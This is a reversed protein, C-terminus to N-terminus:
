APSAGTRDAAIAVRRQDHHDIAAAFARGSGAAHGLAKESARRGPFACAVCIAPLVLLLCRRSLAYSERRCLMSPLKEMIGDVRMCNNLKAAAPARTTRAALTGARDLSRGTRKPGTPASSGMIVVTPLLVDDGEVPWNIAVAVDVDHRTVAVVVTSRLLNPNAQTRALDNMNVAGIILRQVELTSVIGHRKRDDVAVSANNRARFGIAAVYGAALHTLYHTPLKPINSAIRRAEEKSIKKHASSGPFRRQTKSLPMPM